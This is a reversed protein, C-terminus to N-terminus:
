GRGSAVEGEAWTVVARAQALAETREAETAEGLDAPYRTVVAYASLSAAALVLDPLVGKGGLMEMLRALNHTRPVPQGRAVLVAKLAKEAAQQAHFLLHELVVGSPPEVGALALDSQAHRLWHAASGADAGM